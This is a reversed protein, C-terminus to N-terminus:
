RFVHVSTSDHARDPDVDAAAHCGVILLMTLTLLMM